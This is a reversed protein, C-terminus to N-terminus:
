NEELRFMAEEVPVDLQYEVQSIMLSLGPQPEVTIAHPLMVGDISRWDGYYTTGKDPVETAVPLSTEPDLYYTTVGGKPYLLELCITEKGEVRRIGLGRVNAGSEELYVEPLMHSSELERALTDGSIRDVTGMQVYVIEHGDNYVQQKMGMVNITQCQRNPLAQVREIAGTMTQGGVSLAVAGALRISQVARLREGGGLAAVLREWTEADGQVEEPTAPRVPQLETDWLEVDGFTELDSQIDAARGVVVIALDGEDLYRDALAQIEAATTSM